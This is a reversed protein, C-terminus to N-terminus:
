MVILQQQATPLSISDRFTPLVESYLFEVCLRSKRSGFSLSEIFCVLCAVGSSGPSDFTDLNWVNWVAEQWSDLLWPAESEVAALGNPAQTSIRFQYFPSPRRVEYPPIM